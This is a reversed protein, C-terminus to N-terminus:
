LHVLLLFSNLYPISFLNIKKLFIRSLPPPPLYGGETFVILKECSFLFHKLHSSVYTFFINKVGEGRVWWGIAGKDRGMGVGWMTCVSHSCFHTVTLNQSMPQIEWIMYCKNWLRYIIKFCYFFNPFIEPFILIKWYPPSQYPPVGENFIGGFSKKVGGMLSFNTHDPHKIIIRFHYWSTKYYNSFLIM